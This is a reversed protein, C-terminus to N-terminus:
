EGREHALTGAAHIKFYRNAGLTNPIEKLHGLDLLLDCAAAVEPETCSIERSVGRQISGTNFALAARDALWGRVVRRLEEHHAPNM